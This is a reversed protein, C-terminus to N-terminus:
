SMQDWGCWDCELWRIKLIEGDRSSVVKGSVEHKKCQPCEWKEVEEDYTDSM